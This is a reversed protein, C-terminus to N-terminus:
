LPKKEIRAFRRPYGPAARGTKRIVVARHTVDTLPVAYDYVREITGGMVRVANEAQEIEGGSSESKMAIFVGGPKVFPMCLECLVNLRAVARSVAIDFGEHFGAQGSQEEARAHLCQAQLGLLGCVERLWDIRKKLSDLLTLDVASEWLKLPLGPFGAGTGVDIVRKGTFDACGKLALSDLFHLTAVNEPETVATLNMVKNKELLLEGYLCLRDVLTGEAPIGLLPLGKILTQRM